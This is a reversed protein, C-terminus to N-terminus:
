RRTALDINGARLLELVREYDAPDVVTLVAPFNKASARILTPGGIDIRELAEELPVDRGAVADVFPYLNSVVLDIPEFGHARIEELHEPRDRRALLGSHVAPHLTKVRGDLIEPFGTLDSISRAPVRGEQLVRLTNGTSFIEIGLEALGKGLDQIGAKNDVSIIARM